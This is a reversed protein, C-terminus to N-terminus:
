ARGRDRNQAIGLHQHVVRHLAVAILGGVIKLADKVGAAIQM